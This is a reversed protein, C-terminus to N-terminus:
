VAELIDASFLTSLEVEFEIAAVQARCGQFIRAEDPHEGAQVDEM